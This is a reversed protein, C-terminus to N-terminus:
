PIPATTDNGVLRDRMAGSREISVENRIFGPARDVLHARRRFRDEFDIEKGETVSLCNTVVIVSSAGTAMTASGVAIAFRSRRLCRYHLRYAQRSAICTDQLM